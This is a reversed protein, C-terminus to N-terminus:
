FSQWELAGNGDKGTNILLAHFDRDTTVPFTFEVEESSVDNYDRNPIQIKGDLFILLNKTSQTHKPVRFKQRTTSRDGSLSSVMESEKGGLVILSNSFFKVRSM